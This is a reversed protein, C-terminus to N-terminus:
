EEEFGIVIEGIGCDVDLYKAADRGSGFQTERGLGSYTSDGLQIVGAGCDLTCNYDTEKGQLSIEMSGIGCDLDLEKGELWDIVMAGAGVDLDASTGAVMRDVEMNGAGLDVSIEDAQLAEIYVDAAGLDLDIDRFNRDPLYVQLKWNDLVHNRTDEISIEDEDAEVDFYRSVESLDDSAILIKEGEYLYFQIEGARLELELGRTNEDGFALAESVGAMAALEPEATVAHKEASVEPSGDFTEEWGDRGPKLVRQTEDLSINLFEDPSAGMAMGAGIGVLGLAAAIVAIILCIKALPKM